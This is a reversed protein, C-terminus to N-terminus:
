VVTIKNHIVIAHQLVEINKKKLDSLLTMNEKSFIKNHFFDYNEKVEKTKEIIDDYDAWIILNNYPILENLPSRESIVIVGCELAPLIRLEECTHHHPTQHINILIKTNKLINQL